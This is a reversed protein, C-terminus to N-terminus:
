SGGEHRDDLSRGWHGTGFSRWTFNRGNGVKNFGQEGMYLREFFGHNKKARRRIGPFIIFAGPGFKKSILKKL